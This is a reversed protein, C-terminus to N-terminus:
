LSNRWARGDPTLDTALRLRKLMTQAVHYLYTAHGQRRQSPITYAKTVVGHPKRKSMVQIGAVPTTGQYRVFRYSGYSDTFLTVDDMVQCESEEGTIGGCKPQLVDELFNGVTYYAPEPESM